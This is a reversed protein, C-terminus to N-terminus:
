SQPEVDSSQKVNSGLLSAAKFMLDLAQKQESSLMNYDAPRITALLQMAASVHTFMKAVQAEHRNRRQKTPIEGQENLLIAQLSVDM